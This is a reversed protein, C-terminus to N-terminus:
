LEQKQGIPEDGITLGKTGTLGVVLGVTRPNLGVYLTPSTSLMVQESASVNGAALRVQNKLPSFTLVGISTKM